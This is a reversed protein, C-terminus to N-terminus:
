DANPVYIPAVKIDMKTLSHLPQEKQSFKQVLEDKKKKKEESSFLFVFQHLLEVLFFLRLLSRLNLLNLQLISGHISAVIPKDELDDL